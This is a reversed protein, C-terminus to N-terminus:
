YINGYLPSSGGVELNSIQATNTSSGLDNELHVVIVLIILYVFYNMNGGDYSRSPVNHNNRLTEALM